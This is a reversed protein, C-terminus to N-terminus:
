RRTPDFRGVYAWEPHPEFRHWPFRMLFAKALGLQQSGPLNMAEDWPIPGYTGGHPSKGYPQDRRNLQWIGNAGYTHGAAGSLMCTWFMLRPIEAPITGLLAEYSVEGNVVPM